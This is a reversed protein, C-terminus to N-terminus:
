YSFFLIECKSMKRYFDADPNHRISFIRDLGYWAVFWSTPELAVFLLRTFFNQAETPQIYTALLLMAIGLFTLMLGKKRTKKKESEIMEHHRRFHDHLRKKIIIEKDTSRQGHPVLFRLQLGGNKDCCARKAESLFDESLSRQSYHRPDFDSFIDDYTKTLISIESTEFIRYKEELFNSRPTKEM